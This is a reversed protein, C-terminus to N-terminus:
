TEKNAGPIPPPAGARAKRHERVHAILDVVTKLAVFLLVSRVSSGLGLVLFASALIFVHLVVVRGYPAVFLRPFEIRHREGGLCFNCVFSVGHSACMALLTVAFGQTTILAWAHDFAGGVASEDGGFLMLLFFGHLGLFSSYHGVFFLIMFLKGVPRPSPSRTTFMMKLLTFAGIIANELWYLLILPFVKWDLYLVGYVPILNAVILAIASLV